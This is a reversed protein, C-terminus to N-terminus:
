QAEGQYFSDKLSSTSLRAFYKSGATPRFPSSVPMASSTVRPFTDELDELSSESLKHFLKWSPQAQEVSTLFRGPLTIIHVDSRSIGQSNLIIDLFPDFLIWPQARTCLELLEDNLAKRIEDVSHDRTNHLPALEDSDSKNADLTQQVKHWPVVHLNM